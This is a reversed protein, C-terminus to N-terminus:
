VQGERLQLLGAVAVAHQRGFAAVAAQQVARHLAPELWAGCSDLAEHERLHLSKLIYLCPAHTPVLLPECSACGPQQLEQRERPCGNHTCAAWGTPARQGARLWGLCGEAGRVAVTERRAVAGVAKGLAAVAQSADKAHHGESQLCACGPTPKADKGRPANARLPAARLAHDHSSRLGCGLSFPSQEEGVHRAPATWRGTSLCRGHWTRQQGPAAAPSPLCQTCLQFAMHLQRLSGALTSGISM